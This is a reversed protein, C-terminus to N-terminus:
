ACASVSPGEDAVFRQWEEATLDRGVVRCATDIWVAPDAAVEHLDGGSEYWVSAGDASWRVSPQVDFDIDSGAMPAGLLDGTKVDVLQVGLDNLAVALTAGDPSFAALSMAGPLVALTRISSSMPDFIAIRGDDAGLAVVGTTPDHGVLSRLGNSDDLTAPDGVLDGDLVAMVSAGDWSDLLIRGDGLLHLPGPPRDVPTPGAVVDLTAPDVRAVYASGDDPAVAWIFAPGSVGGPQFSAPVLPRDAAETLGDGLSELDVVIREDAETGIVARQPGGGALYLQAGDFSPVATSYGPSYRELLSESRGRM